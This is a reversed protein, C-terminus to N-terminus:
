PNKMWDKAIAQWQESQEISKNMREKMEKWEGPHVYARSGDEEVKKVFVSYAEKKTLFTRFPFKIMSWLFAVVALLATAIISTKEADFNDPNTPMLQFRGAPGLDRKEYRM